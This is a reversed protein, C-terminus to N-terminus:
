PSPNSKFRGVIASMALLAPTDLPATDKARLPCDPTEAEVRSRTRAMASSIPQLGFLTARVREPAGLWVM